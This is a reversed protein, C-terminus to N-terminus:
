RRASGARCIFRRALASASIHERWARMSACLLATHANRSRTTPSHFDSCLADRLSLHHQIDLQVVLPNLARQILRRPPKRLAVADGAEALAFRRALDDLEREADVGDEFLRGLPHHRLRQLLRHLAFPEIRDRRRLDLDGAAPRDRQARSHRQRRGDFDAVVAADGDLARLAFVALLQYVLLHQRHAAAVRHEFGDLARRLEVILHGGVDAGDDVILLDDALRAGIQMEALPLRQGHRAERLTQDAELDAHLVLKLDIHVLIPAVLLHRPLGDRKPDRDVLDLSLIQGVRVVIERHLNGVLELREGIQARLQRLAQALLRILPDFLLQTLGHELRHDGLCRQLVRRRQHLVFDLVHPLVERPLHPLIRRREQAVLAVLPGVRQQVAEARLGMVAHDRRQHEVLDDLGLLDLHGVFLHLNIQLREEGM